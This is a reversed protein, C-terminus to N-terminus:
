RGEVGLMRLSASSTVDGVETEAAKADARCCKEPL